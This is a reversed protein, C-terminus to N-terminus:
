PTALEFRPIAVKLEDGGSTRFRYYGAMSGTPGRLVCFSQYEHVDGPALVPLAGVVGEGEVESDGAVPDHIFWHRWLLQVTADGTNEIRIHYIFVYRPEAPDSHEPSFLPRVVVRIGSTIAHYLRVGGNRDPNM